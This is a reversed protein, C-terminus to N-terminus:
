PQRDTPEGESKPPHDQGHGHGHPMFLHMLMCGALLLFPLLTDLGVSERVVVYVLIAAGVCLAIGKPSRLLNRLGDRSFIEM